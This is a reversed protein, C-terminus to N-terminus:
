RRGDEPVPAEDLIDRVDSAVIDTLGKGFIQTSATSSGACMDLISATLLWRGSYELAEVVAVDVDQSSHKLLNYVRYFLTAWRDTDGIWTEWESSVSSAVAGPVKAKPVKRAWPAASNRANAAVWYELAAATSLLRAQHPQNQFLRHRVVPTVARQHKLATGVWNAVGQVNGIDALTFIPFENPGPPVTDSMMTRDWMAARRKSSPELQAAGKVATVPKRHAVSLLAHLADLRSVHQSLPRRDESRLELVLPKRLSRNDYPGSVTWGHRIALHYGDGIASSEATQNEIEIRWGVVGVGEEVIPQDRHDTNGSWSDLGLYSLSTETVTDADVEDFPADVLITPATWRVIPLIFDGRTTTRRVRGVPALITGAETIGAVVNNNAPDASWQGAPDRKRSAVITIDAGDAGLKIHGAFQKKLPPDTLTQFTGVAGDHLLVLPDPLM